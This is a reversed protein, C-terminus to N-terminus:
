LWGIGDARDNARQELSEATDSLSQVTEDQPDPLQEEGTALTIPEMESVRETLLRFERLSEVVEEDAHDPANLVYEIIRPNIDDCTSILQSVDPESNYTDISDNVEEAFKSVRKFWQRAEKTEERRSRYESYAVGVGGSIFGGIATPLVAGWDIAM